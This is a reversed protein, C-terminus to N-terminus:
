FARVEGEPVVERQGAEKPSGVEKSSTIEKATPSKMLRPSFKYTVLESTPRRLPAKPTNNFKYSNVSNRPKEKEVSKVAKLQPTQKHPTLSNRAEGRIQKSINSIEAELTTNNLLSNQGLVIESTTCDM